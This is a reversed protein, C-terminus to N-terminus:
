AAATVHLIGRHDPHGSGCFVTCFIDFDGARDARFTVEVSRGPLVEINVDYELIAFSHKVDTSSLRLTILEGQTVNIPLEKGPVYTYRSMTINIVRPVEDDANQNSVCGALFAVVVVLGLTLGIRWWLGRMM